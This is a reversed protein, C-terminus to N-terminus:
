FLLEPEPEHTESLKGPSVKQWAAVRYYVDELTKCAAARGTQDVIWIGFIDAPWVRLLYWVNNLCVKYQAMYGQEDALAM